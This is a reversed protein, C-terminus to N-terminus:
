DLRKKSSPDASTRFSCMRQELHNLPRDPLLALGWQILVQDTGVCETQFPPPDLGFSRTGAERPADTEQAEPLQRMGMGSFPAQRM